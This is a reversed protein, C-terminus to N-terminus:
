SRLQQPDVVMDPMPPQPVTVTPVLMVPPALDAPIYQIKPLATQPEAGAGAHAGGAALTLCAIAAAHFFRM